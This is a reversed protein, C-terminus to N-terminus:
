PAKYPAATPTEVIVDGHANSIIRTGDALDEVILDPNARDQAGVSPATEVALAEVVNPNDTHVPQVDIIPNHDPKGPLDEGSSSISIDKIINPVASGKISIGGVGVPAHAGIHATPGRTVPAEVVPAKKVGTQKQEVGRKDVSVITEEANKAEVKKEPEKKSPAM